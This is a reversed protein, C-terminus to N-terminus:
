EGARDGSEVAHPYQWIELQIGDPDRLYAWRAGQSPGSEITVPPGNFVAGKQRLDAYAADIDSVEFCVHTAGVDNNGLAFDAGEPESYQLFEITTNGVDLMVFALQAGPVQVGRALDPGSARTTEGAGLGFMSSYWRVSREIDRVTLGLHHIGGVTYAM